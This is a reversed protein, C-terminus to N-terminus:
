AILANANAILADTIQKCLQYERNRIARLFAFNHLVYSFRVKFMYYFFTM